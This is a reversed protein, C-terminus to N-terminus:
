PSNRKDPEGRFEPSQTPNPCLWWFRRTLASGPGDSWLSLRGATRLSGSGTYATITDTLCGISSIAGEVRQLMNSVSAPKIHPRGAVDVRSLPGYEALAMLVRGQGHHLGTKDLEQQVRDRLLKGIRLLLHLM